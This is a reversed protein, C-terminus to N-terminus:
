LVCLNYLYYHYHHFVGRLAFPAVSVLDLQLPITMKNLNFIM